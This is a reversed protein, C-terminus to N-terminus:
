WADFTLCVRDSSLRLSLPVLYLDLTGRAGQWLFIHAFRKQHHLFLSQFFLRKPPWFTSLSMVQLFSAHRPEADRRVSVSFTYWTSPIHARGLEGEDCEAPTIPPELTAPTKGTPFVQLVVRRGNWEWVTRRGDGGRGSGSGSGSGGSGDNGYGGSRGEVIRHWGRRGRDYNTRFNRPAPDAM